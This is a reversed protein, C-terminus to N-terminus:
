SSVQNNWDEEIVIGGNFVSVLGDNGNIELAMGWVEGASINWDTPAHFFRENDAIASDEKVTWATGVDIWNASADFNGSGNWKKCYIKYNDGSSISCPVAFQLKIKTISLNTMATMTFGVTPATVGAGVVAQIYHSGIPFFYETGDSQGSILYSFIKESKFVKAYVSNSSSLYGEAQINGSATVHTTAESGLQIANKEADIFFAKTDGRSEIRFDIDGDSTHGEENFTIEDQGGDEQTFDLMNAGGAHINIDDDTFNIFTDDDESHYIYQKIHLNSASIDGEVQLKKTPNTTGIGVNGGDTIRIRETNNTGFRMHDNEKQFIVATENADIGIQFGDSSGEGTTTNTIQLYNATSDGQHLHLKNDPSTTGIGINGDNKITFAQNNSLGSGTSIAFTNDGNDFGISFKNTGGDQFRIFSDGSTSQIEASVGSPNHLILDNGSLGGSASINGSATIHSTTSIGGGVTLAAGNSATTAQNIVVQSGTVVFTANNSGDSDIIDGVYGIGFVNAGTNHADNDIGAVMFGQTNKFVIAANQDGNRELTLLTGNDSEFYGQSGYVIGSASINGSATIHSQVNLDGAIDLTSSPTIDGIGIQGSGSILIFQNQTGGGQILFNQIQGSGITLDNTTNLRKLTIGTGDSNEIQFEANNSMRIEGGVRFDGSSSINGDNTIGGVVTLGGLPNDEASSGTIFVSGTFQHTDDPVTDGFITSGSAFSTTMETVTSKVIYNQAIVNGSASINGFVTLAETIDSGDNEETNIGVFGGDTSSTMRMVPSTTGARFILPTVQSAGLTTPNRFFISVKTNKTPPSEGDHVTLFKGDPIEVNGDKLRVADSDTDSSGFAGYVSRIKSGSINTADLFDVNQIDFEKGASASIIYKDGDKHYGVLLATEPTGRTDIFKIYRDSGTDILFPIDSNVNSTNAFTITDDVHINSAKINGEFFNSEEDAPLRFQDVYIWQDNPLGLVNCVKEGYFKYRLLRDYEDNLATFTISGTNLSGSLSASLLNNDKFTRSTDVDGSFLNSNQYSASVSGTIRHYVQSSSLVLDNSTNVFSSSYYSQKGGNITELLIRFDFTAM